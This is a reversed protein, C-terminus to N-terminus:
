AHFAHARSADPPVVARWFSRRAAAFSSLPRLALAKSAQFVLLLSSKFILWTSVRARFWCSERLQSAQHDNTSSLSSAFSLNTLATAQSRSGRILVHLEHADQSAPNRPRRRDATCIKLLRTAQAHFVHCHWICIIASRDAASLRAPALNRSLRMRAHVAHTACQSDMSPKRRTAVRMIFREVTAANVEHCSNVSCAAASAALSVLAPARSASM